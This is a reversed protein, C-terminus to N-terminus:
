CLLWAHNEVLNELLIKQALLLATAMHSKTKPVLFGYSFYLSHNHFENKPALSYHQFLSHPNLGPNWDLAVVHVSQSVSSVKDRQAQFHFITIMLLGTASIAHIAVFDLSARLM